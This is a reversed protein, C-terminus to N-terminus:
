CLPPPYVHKIDGEKSMYNLVNADTQAKSKSIDINGYRTIYHNFRDRKLSKTTSIFAHWHPRGNAHHEKVYSYKKIGLGTRLGQQKVLDDVMSEREPSIEPWKSPDLTFTIMYRYITEKNLKKQDKVANELTQIWKPYERQSLLELIDFRREDTTQPDLFEEALQDM